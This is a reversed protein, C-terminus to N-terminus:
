KQQSPSKNISATTTTTATATTATTTNHRHSQSDLVIYCSPLSLILLVTFVLIFLLM